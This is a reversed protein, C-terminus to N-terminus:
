TGDYRLFGHSANWGLASLMQGYEFARMMPAFAVALSMNNIDDPLVVRCLTVPSPHPELYTTFGPLPIEQENAVM